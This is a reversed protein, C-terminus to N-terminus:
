RGRREPGWVRVLVFRACLFGFLCVLLRLWRGNMVFYFGLIVVVLRAFFSSLSFFVPRPTTPLKRVTLWLGAFYFIGLGVGAALALALFLFDNANL